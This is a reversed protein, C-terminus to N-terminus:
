KVDAASYVCAADPLLQDIPRQSISMLTGNSDTAVTWAQAVPAGNGTQNGAAAPDATWMEIGRFPSGGGPAFAIAEAATPLRAPTAGRARCQQIATLWDVYQGIGHHIVFACFNRNDLGVDGPACQFLTNQAIAAGTLANPAVTATTVAGAALKKRTVAHKAIDQRKVQGDVINPSSVSNEPLKFAAYSTGGLAIAVAITAMVNAYSIRPRRSRLV